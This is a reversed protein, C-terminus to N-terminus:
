WLAPLPDVCPEPTSDGIITSVGPIRDPEKAQSWHRCMRAFRRPQLDLRRTWLDRLRHHEPALEPSVLCRISEAFAESDRSLNLWQSRAFADGTTPIAAICARSPIQYCEITATPNLTEGNWVFTVGTNQFLRLLDGVLSKPSVTAIHIGQGPIVLTLEITDSTNNKPKPSRQSMALSFRFHSFKRESWRDPMSFKFAM